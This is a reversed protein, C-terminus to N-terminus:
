TVRLLQALAQQYFTRLEGEIWSKAEDVTAFDHRSKHNSERGCVGFILDNGPFQTIRGEIQGEITLLYQGMFEGGVKTWM